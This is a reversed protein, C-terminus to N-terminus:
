QNQLTVRVGHARPSAMLLLRLLKQGFQVQFGGSASLPTARAVLSALRRIFLTRTNFTM